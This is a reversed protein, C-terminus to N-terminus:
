RSKRSLMLPSPEESFDKMVKLRNFQENARDFNELRRPSEGRLFESTKWGTEDKDPASM